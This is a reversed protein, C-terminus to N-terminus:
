RCVGRVVDVCRVQSRCSIQLTTSDVDRADAGRSGSIRRRSISSISSPMNSLFENRPSIFKDDKGPGSNIECENVEQEM